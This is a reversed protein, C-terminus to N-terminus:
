PSINDTMGVLDPEPMSNTPGQSVRYYESTSGVDCTGSIRDRVVRGRGGSVGTGSLVDCIPPTNIRHDTIQDTM